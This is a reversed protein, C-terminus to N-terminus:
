RVLTLRHSRLLEPTKLRLLYVGSGVEHGRDDVGDWSVRHPGPTERADVLVRVLRGRADHVSLRVKQERSLEYRIETRPNFPNPANGVIRTRYATPAPADTGDLTISEQVMMVPASRGHAEWADYLDQGWSNTGNEDRLFEVYEKSTSQYYLMVDVNVAEPPLPYVVEDWYQGDAYVKGVPQAQVSEFGAQTYGRPPIRNDFFISDNLAFHFSPGAILGVIPSLRTSIGPEVHYITLHEDHQLVGTAPDYDGSVFVEGGVGDTARVQLWIRRGEPYGSPLKHATENQVRVRVAPKFDVVEQTLQLTAALQLMDVARTAGADLELPDVEGGFFDPIIEPVFTNGGTLDHRGLDARNPSGGVNSGKGVVDSMHCDQCTSVIGDAKAGAFQPAFVGTSAYESQSWESFTREVPFMNRLDGDPHEQNLPDVVYEDPGAGKVFVPNSVDHCTGCMRADNHFPSELFPHAAQADAYPGRKVPDPDLVFDGNATAPPVASLAALIDQDTAPSSGPAYVPDVLRHCFDCQVGHRDVAITQGGTTDLSRGAVWGGPTHCRLCMDGVGPADQEAVALTALFLPDRMAQAMMSGQWGEWPEAVPDYNAHCSVCSVSPDELEGGFFPKTGPLEFDRLSTPVTGTTLVQITFVGATTAAGENGVSDRAVVRLLNNGGPLNPVFWNEMGDNPEHALLTKWSSGGDDSLEIRISAVGSSDTASWLALPTDGPTYSEGGVPDLLAVLPPDDDDSGEPTLYDEIESTDVNVVSGLGSETLGPFTPTNAFSLFDYIETENSYGDNDSDNGAIAMVAEEESAYLGSNIAVELANGYANRAGGGDFDLHCVGCHNANSVLEDLRTNEADPYVDFFARRIPPRAFGDAALLLCLLACALPVPLRFLPRM